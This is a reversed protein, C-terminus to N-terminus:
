HRIESGSVVFRRPDAFSNARYDGCGYEYTKRNNEDDAENTVLSTISSSHGIWVQIPKDSVKVNEAQAELIPHWRHQQHKRGEQNPVQKARSRVFLHGFSVGQSDSLATARVRV